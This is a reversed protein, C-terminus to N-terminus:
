NINKYQIFYYRPASLLTVAQKKFTMSLLCSLKCYVNIYFLKDLQSNFERCIYKGEDRIDIDSIRLILMKTSSEPSILRLKSKFQDAIIGKRTVIINETKYSSIVGNQSYLPEAKLWTPNLNAFFSNSEDHSTDDQMLPRFLRNNNSNFNSSGGMTCNLYVTKGPLVTLNTISVSPSPSLLPNIGAGFSSKYYSLINNSDEQHPMFGFVTQILIFLYLVFIM